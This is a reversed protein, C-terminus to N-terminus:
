GKCRSLALRLGAGIEAPTSDVTLVVNDTESIRDGSWAELKEHFSPRITIINNVLHVGCKKMNKFLARKNKYGYKDMLMAIWVAYQEKAKELNFFEIRDALETLTRSNSLARLIEAGLIEDDVDTLLLRSPFLPDRGTMGLGSYTEVDWFENTVFVNVWYDQDKNFEM